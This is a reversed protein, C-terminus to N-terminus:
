EGFEVDERTLVALAEIHPTQPFLDFGRIMEVQYDRAVLRALDRALTAPDCSLYVIRRAEFAALEEAAGPALGSRPPDLVIADPRWAGLDELVEEVLGSRVEVNQIDARRLNRALDALATADSEVAIVADFRRALGLTFFGSGAYLELVLGTGARDLGQHLAAVLDDRLLDNGQFFGGQSIAVRDEGLAVDFGRTPSPVGRKERPNRVPGSRVKGEAGLAIEWESREGIAESFAPSSLGDALEALARDVPAALVPCHRIPEIEHDHWRRFGVAGGQIQLRARGRYGFPEPSPVVQVEPLAELKGIRRLAERLIVEKAAVQEEYGIHQWACGGCSGFVNCRPEVRGPGPALLEQIRGRIFNGKSQSYSIRARDGPATWRVFAVRGDPLHGVGDGGAALSEIEVTAELDPGRAPRRVRSRSRRKRPKASM